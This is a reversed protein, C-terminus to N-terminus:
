TTDARQSLVPAWGYDSGLVMAVVTPLWIALLNCITPDSCLPATCSESYHLRHCSSSQRPYTSDQSGNPPHTFWSDPAEFHIVVCWSWQSYYWGGDHSANMGNHM